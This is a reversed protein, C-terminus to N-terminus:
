PNYATTKRGTIKHRQLLEKMINSAFQTGRDSLLSAPPGYRLIWQNELARVCTSASINTLPVAEMWRTSHDMMTLVYRYGGRQVPLPGVIDIAVM